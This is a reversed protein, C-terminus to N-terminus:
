KAKLLADFYAITKLLGERLEVKPEWGLEKRALTIDPRRQRPDDAPLPKAIIKSKGGTLDIVQEALQRITFEGPNGMNLPGTLSPHDMFRTMGDILDDV